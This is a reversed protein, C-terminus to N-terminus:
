NIGIDGANWTFVVQGKCVTLKDVLKNKAKVVSPFLDSLRDFSIVFQLPVRMTPVAYIIDDRLTLM